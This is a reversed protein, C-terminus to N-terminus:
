GGMVQFYKMMFHFRCIKIDNPKCERNCKEGPVMTDLSISRDPEIRNLFQGVIDNAVFPYQLFGSSFSILSFVQISFTIKMM